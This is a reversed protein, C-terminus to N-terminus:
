GPRVCPAEAALRSGRTAGAAHAPRGPRSSPGRRRAPPSRRCVWLQWANRGGQGPVDDALQEIRALLEMVGSFPLSACSGGLGVTGELRVSPPATLCLILDM